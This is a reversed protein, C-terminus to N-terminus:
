SHVLPVSQTLHSHGLTHWVGSTRASGQVGLYKMNTANNDCHEGGLATSLKPLFVGQSYAPKMIVLCLWAQCKGGYIDSMSQIPWRTFWKRHGVSTGIPQNM